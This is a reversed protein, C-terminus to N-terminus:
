DDVSAYEILEKSSGNVKELICSLPNESDGSLEQKDKWGCTNFLVLKTMNSNFKNLLGGMVLRNKQWTQAYEYVSRFNENRKAFDVIYKDPYGRETAFQSFWFSTPLQLWEWFADAEKEIREDTWERPRGLNKVWTNYPPHGKPAPM